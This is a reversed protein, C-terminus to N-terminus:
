AGFNEIQNGLQGGCMSTKLCKKTQFENSM